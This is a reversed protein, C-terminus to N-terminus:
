MKNLQLQRGVEGEFRVQQYRGRKNNVGKAGDDSNKDRDDGIEEEAETGTEIMARSRRRRRIRRLSFHRTLRALYNRQPLISHKTTITKTRMRGIRRRRITGIKVMTVVTMMKTRRNRMYATSIRSIMMTGIGEVYERVM